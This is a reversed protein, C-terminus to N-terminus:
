FVLKLALQGIRPDNAAKITGFGAGAVSPALAVIGNGTTSSQPVNPNYLNVRNFLNFFEARFQLKVREQRLPFDKFLGGDYDILNPGRLAGKGVNGHSGIAPLAFASPNVWSVCPASAGCANGGYPDGGVYQARDANLGTGSQDKGALM